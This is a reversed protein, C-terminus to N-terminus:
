GRLTALERMGWDYMPAEATRTHRDLFKMRHEVDELVRRAEGTRGAKLL